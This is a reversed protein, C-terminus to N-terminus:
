KLVDSAGVLNVAPLFLADFLSVYSFPVRSLM